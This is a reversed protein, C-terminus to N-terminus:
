LANWDILRQSPVYGGQTCGPVPLLQDGTQDAGLNNIGNYFSKKYRAEVEAVRVLVHYGGRTEIIELCSPNVLEKLKSFDFEKTDIDFDLFHKKGSSRQICSMIEAHPNINDHHDRLSRTLEIIGNYTAKKLDRPNPNIYFALSEQPAGITKLRYAGVEVELQKIKEYLREKSSLFRKLQTKDSAKINPDESYKKRSFLCCYYKEHAALEPLWEIFHQLKDEDIIIQYNM